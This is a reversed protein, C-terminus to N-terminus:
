PHRQIRRQYYIFTLKGTHTVRYNQFGKEHAVDIVKSKREYDRYFSNNESIELDSLFWPKSVDTGEAPGIIIYDPKRRLVYDGDGKEHGPYKQLPLRMEVDKRKAITPDNLGLMDIFRHEPAFFPTSGATNLAITSGKSFDSSIYKGIIAGVYAAQDRHKAMSLEESPLIIQFLLGVFILSCVLTQQTRERNLAHFLALSLIPVMPVMFRYAPMHDGGVYIVYVCFVGLLLWLYLEKGSPKGKRVTYYLGFIMLLGFYPPSFLFEGCYSLGQSLKLFGFGTKVYYTNPFIDGYYSIRWLLYAGYVCLFSFGFGILYKYGYRKGEKATFLLFILSILFMLVGEPRTLASLVFCLGVFVGRGLTTHRTESLIAVSVFLLLTFLLTEMGGLAWIILSFCMGTMLIPLYKLYDYESSSRYRLLFLFFFLLLAVYSFLGLFRSAFELGFGLKGLFCILIIFLFNTYGEVREDSNWVLGQEQLLNNAYRLSIYSDDHFFHHYTLIGYISLSLIVALLFIVYIRKM